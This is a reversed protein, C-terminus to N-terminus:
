PTDSYDSTPLLAAAAAAPADPNGALAPIRADGALTSLTNGRGWAGGAVAMGQPTLVTGPQPPLIEGRARNRQEAQRPAAVLPPPRLWAYLNTVTRVFDQTEKIAPVRGGARAVTGEGANYAALALEVRGGYLNLLYRLYRSGTLVNTRADQLQRAVAKRNEGTVGFRQATAPMLQMLGVAGRPSLATVDYGSEAAILAQLLEFELNYAQAAERLHHKVQKFAPSVEFFAVLRPPATPVPVARPMDLLDPTDDLPMGNGRFFLQYRDDLKEAAFHPVGRADMWAWVDARAGQMSFSLLLVLVATGFRGFFRM